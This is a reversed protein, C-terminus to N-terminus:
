TGIEAAVLDRLRERLDRDRGPDEPLGGVTAYTWWGDCAFRVLAATAPSLGDATLREDWSAFRDACRELVQGDVEPGTLLAAAVDPQSASVDFTADIYAHAWAAPGGGAAARRDVDVEFRDLVDDILAAILAAKTPFHYLLGGKSVGAAAAVADLTLAAAGERRVLDAAATLLRHRNSPRPM